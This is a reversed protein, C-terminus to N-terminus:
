DVYVNKLQMLCQIVGNRILIEKGISTQAMLLLLRNLKEAVRVSQATLCGLLAEPFLGPLNIKCIM